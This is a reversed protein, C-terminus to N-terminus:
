RPLTVETETDINVERFWVRVLHDERGTGVIRAHAHQHKRHGWPMVASPAINYETLLDEFVGALKSKDELDIDLFTSGGTPAGFAYERTASFGEKELVRTAARVIEQNDM